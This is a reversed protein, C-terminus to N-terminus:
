VITFYRPKQDDSLISEYRIIFNVLGSKILDGNISQVEGMNVKRGYVLSLIEELNRYQNRTLYDMVADRVIELKFLDKYDVGVHSVVDFSNMGEVKFSATKGRYLEIRQAYVRIAETVRPNFSPLSIILRCSDKIQKVSFDEAAIRKIFDEDLLIMNFFERVVGVSIGESLIVKALEYQRQRIKSLNNTLSSERRAEAPSVQTAEANSSAVQPPARHERRKLMLEVAREPAVMAMTFNNPTNLILYALSEGHTMAIDRLHAQDQSGYPVLMIEVDSPHQLKFEAIDNLVRAANRRRIHEKLAPLLRKPIRVVVSLMSKQEIRCEKPNHEVVFPQYLFSVQDAQPSEIISAAIDVPKLSPIYEEVKNKARLLEMEFPFVRVMTSLYHEASLQAIDKGSPLNRSQGPMPPPLDSAYFVEDMSKYLKFGSRRLYQSKEVVLEDRFVMHDLSSLALVYAEKGQEVCVVTHACFHIQGAINLEPISGNLVTVGTLPFNLRQFEYIIFSALWSCDVFRERIVDTITVEKYEPNEAALRWYARNGYKEVPFMGRVGKAIEQLRVFLASSAQTAAGQPTEVSEPSVAKAQM